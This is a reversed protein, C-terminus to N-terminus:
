DFEQRHHGYDPYQGADNGGRYDSEALLTDMDVLEVDVDAVDEQTVHPDCGLHRMGFPKALKFMEHGINGVGISGLTKGTLGEGRYQRQDAWRGQRTIRDKIILRM